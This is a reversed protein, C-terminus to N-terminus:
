NKKLKKSKGANPGTTQKATPADHPAPLASMALGILLVLHCAHLNASRISNSFAPVSWLLYPITHYYWVYFQYHLSRSFAIGIFNTVFMPYVVDEPNLKERRKSPPMLDLFQMLGGRSRIFRILFFALLLIHLGLLAAHFRRDLFVSEPLIKWNVTWKYMFQRSFEFAAGLYAATNRFLFISALLLFRFAVGYIEFAQSLFSM